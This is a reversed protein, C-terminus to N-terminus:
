QIPAQDAMQELDAYSKQLSTLEQGMARKTSDLSATLLRSRAVAELTTQQM